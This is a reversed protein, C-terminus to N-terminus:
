VVPAEEKSRQESQPLCLDLDLADNNPPEQLPLQQDEVEEDRDELLLPLKRWHNLFSKKRKKPSAMGPYTYSPAGLIM